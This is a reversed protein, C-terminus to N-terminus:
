KPRVHYRVKIRMASCRDKCSSKCSHINVWRSIHARASETLFSSQEAVMGQSNSLLPLSQGHSICLAAKNQDCPKLDDADTKKDGKDRHKHVGSQVTM